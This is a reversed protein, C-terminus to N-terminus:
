IIHLKVEESLIECGEIHGSIKYYDWLARCLSRGHLIDLIYYYLLLIISYYHLLVIICYCLLLITFYYYFLLISFSLVIEITVLNEKAFFNQNNLFEWIVNIGM